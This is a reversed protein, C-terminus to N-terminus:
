DKKNKRVVELMESIHQPYEGEFYENVLPNQTMFHSTFEIWTDVSINGNMKFLKESNTKIQVDNKLNYNFDSDRRTFYEDPTYFHIAGDFHRFHNKALDFEAHVYRVPHFDADNRKVTFDATKFEESQFSKIGNKTEWKIDLSFTKNFFFDILFPELDSPPRLQVTDDKILSIDKNFKAGFWTDEEMYMRNDVNIRVRDYDIAIYPSIEPANFKWFLNIFRPAFNANPHLSRRFNPHAMLMFKEAYLFGDAFPRNEFQKKLMNFDLLGEKDREFDSCLASVINPYNAVIGISQIYRFNKDTLKIGKSDSFSIFSSILESNEKLEKQEEDIMQQVFRKQIEEASEM